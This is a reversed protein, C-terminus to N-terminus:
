LLHKLPCRFCYRVWLNPLAQACTAASSGKNQTKALQTYAKSLSIKKGLEVARMTCGRVQLGPQHRPDGPGQTRGSRFPVAWCPQHSWTRRVHRGRRSPVFLFRMMLTLAVQNIEHQFVKNAGNRKRYKKQKQWCFPSKADCGNFLKPLKM